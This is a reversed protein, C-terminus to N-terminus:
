DNEFKGLDIHSRTNLITLTMKSNFLKLLFVWLTKLFITENLVKLFYAKSDFFIFFLYFKLSM